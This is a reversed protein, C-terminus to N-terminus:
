QGPFQELIANKKTVLVVSEKQADVVGRVGGVGRRRSGCALSM